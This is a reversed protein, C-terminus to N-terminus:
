YLGQLMGQKQILASATDAGLKVATTAAVTAPIVGPLVSGIITQAIPEIFSGKFIGSAGGPDCGDKPMAIDVPGLVSPGQKDMFFTFPFMRSTGNDWLKKPVLWAKGADMLTWIITIPLLFITISSIFKAAAGNMDGAVLLDFGFPLFVLFMYAIWRLPSRSLPVGPQNDRFMGSGIGAAGVIPISLGNKQVSDREGLIQLLDYFYWLGFSFLNFLFKAIATLPSRLWLHDLGLFGGFISIAILSWYPYWPGGWYARKTSDFLSWGKTTDGNQSAESM